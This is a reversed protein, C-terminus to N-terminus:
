KKKRMHITKYKNWKEFRQGARGSRCVQFTKNMGKYNRNPKLLM